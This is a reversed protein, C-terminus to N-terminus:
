PQEIPLPRLADDPDFAHKLRQWLAKLEPPTSLEVISGDARLRLATGGVVAAASRIATAKDPAHTWVIGFAADAVWQEPRAHAIFEGLRAPPVSVRCRIRSDDGAWAAALAETRHRTDADLTMRQRATPQHAELMNEIYQLTAEDGLFGCTLAEANVIAWQPRCHSTLLANLRAVQEDMAGGKFTALISGAPRRYIRATITVVRGFVGHQGVMFKTLDYGAVNKMTRGGATILDGSGSTFQCGLLADRWGGYGLRLPGTSNGEVLAGVTCDDQGDIALWQDHEALRKQVDGLTVDAGITVTLDKVMHDIAGPAVWPTQPTRPPETTPFAM